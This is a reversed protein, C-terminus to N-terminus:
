LRNRFGIGFVLPPVFRADAACRRWLFARCPLAPFAFTSSVSDAEASPVQLLDKGRLRELVQEVECKERRLSVKTELVFPIQLGNVSRYDRFYVQVPYDTGDLRRPPGEIKAELFTQPDIWVHIAQGDKRTLNLKYTDRGEVKEMGALEVSTGKAAYDVLPGDLDEQM